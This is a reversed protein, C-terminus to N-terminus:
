DIGYNIKNKSFLLLLLLAETHMHGFADPYQIGNIIRLLFNHFLGSYYIGLYLLLIM